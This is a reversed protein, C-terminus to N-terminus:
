LRIMIKQLKNYKFLNFLLLSILILETINLTRAQNDTATPTIEETTINIPKPVGPAGLDVPKM